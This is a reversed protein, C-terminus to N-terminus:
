RECVMTPVHSSALDELVKSHDTVTKTLLPCSALKALRIAGLLPHPHSCGVAAQEWFQRPLGFNVSSAGRKLVWRLRQEVAYVLRKESRERSRMADVVTRTTVVLSQRVLESEWWETTVVM